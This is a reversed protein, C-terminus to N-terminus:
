LIFLVGSDGISCLSVFSNLTRTRNVDFGTRCIGNPIRFCSTQIVDEGFQNQEDEDPENRHYVAGVMSYLVDDSLCPDAIPVEHYIVDIM